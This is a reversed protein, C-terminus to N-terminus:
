GDLRALEAEAAALQDKTEQVLKAPARAIYGENALRGRLTSIKKGLEERLKAVRQSDAAPDTLGAVYLECKDAAARVSGAAATVGPGVDALTCTALLEIAPRMATIQRSADGPAMIAVTVPKRADVKYENRLNRITAVIEQIRPFIHEAAQSVDGTGPWRARALHPADAAAPCEIRGPLGRAPCVENLKWWLVETVHPIVPHMLRLAGDLLSALIM